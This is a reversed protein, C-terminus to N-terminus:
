TPRPGASPGPPHRAAGARSPNPMSWPQTPQMHVDARVVGVDPRSTSAVRTSWVTAARRESAPRCPRVRRGRAAPRSPTSVVSGVVNMAAARVSSVLTSASSTLHMTSSGEHRGSRVSSLWAM